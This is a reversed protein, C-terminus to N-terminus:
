DGFAVLALAGLCAAFLGVMVLGLTRSRRRSAGAAVGLAVLPVVGVLPMGPSASVYFATPLSLAIAGWLLVPSLRWAGAIALALALLLSPWGLLM